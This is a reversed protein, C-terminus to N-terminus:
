GPLVGWGRLIEVLRPTCPLREVAAADALGVDSADDGAVPEQPAPELTCRFDAGDFM